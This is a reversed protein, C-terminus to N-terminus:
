RFRFCHDPEAQAAENYPTANFGPRNVVHWYAAASGAGSTRLHVLREAGTGALRFRGDADTTAAAIDGVAPWLNRDAGPWNFSFMRNTWASLFRDVSNGDFAGVTIVAVQVGAVPKGQTDVIKGHIVHDKVLRLEVARAPNLGAIAAFDLGAGPACAALFRGPEWGKPVKVTFRGDAGSTGLDEPKQRRGVLILRAGHFPRGQPDLVQGSVDMMPESTPREAVAQPADSRAPMARDDPPTAGTPMSFWAGFSLASVGLLILAAIM